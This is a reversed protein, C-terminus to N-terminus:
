DELLAKLKQKLEAKAPQAARIIASAQLFDFARFLSVNPKVMLDPAAQRMKEATIAGGMVLVTTVLCEWPNPIDHRELAPEGSLDVAVIVDARDRLRDFPLPNSAAGDILVRNDIVVPRMLSPLAISAALAPRLLGQSFEVQERRHLDTAIVLLPITLHDFQEPVERPLFESCFKEADVLAASGFDLNFLSTITGARSAVLRRFVEVRDHTLRLVFRRIDRASMGAAYAAGFLSGISSGAIRAPKRGREDFAEFSAIPALGRAGGGSLALAFSRSM